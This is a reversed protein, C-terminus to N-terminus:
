DSSASSFLILFYFRQLLIVVFHEYLMIPWQQISSLILINLFLLDITFNTVLKMFSEFSSKIVM